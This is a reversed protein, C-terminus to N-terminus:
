NFCLNLNNILEKKTEQFGKRLVKLIIKKGTPITLISPDKEVIQIADDNFDLQRSLAEYARERTKLASRCLDDYTKVDEKVQLFMIVEQVQTIFTQKTIEELKKYNKHNKKCQRSTQDGKLYDPFHEEIVKDFNEETHGNKILIKGCELTIKIQQLVGVRADNDSWYQYFTKLIPKVIFNLLGADLEKDILKKGFELSDEMQSIMQEEIIRSNRELIDM